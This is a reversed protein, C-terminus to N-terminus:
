RGDGIMENRKLGFIRRLETKLCGLEVDKKLTLWTRFMHLILTKFIKIKASHPLLFYLQTAALM